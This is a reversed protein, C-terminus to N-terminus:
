QLVKMGTASRRFSLFGLWAAPLVCLAYAALSTAAVGEPGYLSGAVFKAPTAVVLYAAWGIIQPRVIGAANLVMMLPSAAAALAWWAGLLVVLGRSPLDTASGLWHGFLTDAFASVILATVGVGVGSLITMRRTTREVWPLDGKAIADANAPWLPLNILTVLLGLATMARASVAYLAADDLGNTHTVILTDMNLAVASLLSIVLFRGGLGLMSRAAAGGVDHARPIAEPHRTFFWATNMLNGLIPAAAVALVVVVVEAGARVAVWALAVSLLSGAAVWANSQSVQQHAYQIRQVLSLPVNLLFAGLTVFAIAPAVDLLARDSINLLTSWPVWNVCLALLALATLAFVALMSYSSAILTRALPRDGNAVAYSLRTMLGNGLGLDAWIAMSTLSIVAMWLGYVHTGLYSFTLPVLLLPALAAVGRSAVASLIGSRLRRSRRIGEM